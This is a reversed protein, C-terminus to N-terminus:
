KLVFATNELGKHGLVSIFGARISVTAGFGTLAAAALWESETLSAVTDGCPDAGVCVDGELDPSTGVFLEDLATAGLGTELAAEAAV